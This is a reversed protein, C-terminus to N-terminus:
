EEPHVREAEVREVKVAQLDVREWYVAAALVVGMVDEVKAAAPFGAESTHPRELLAWM